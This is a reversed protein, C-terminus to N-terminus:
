KSDEEPLYSVLYERILKKQQDSIKAKPQMKALNKDWEAENFRAPNYLSHCSSCKSVYLERGSTLQDLPVGAADAHVQTPTYIASGCAYATAAVTSILVIKKLSDKFHM